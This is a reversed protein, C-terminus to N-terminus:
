KRAQSYTNRFYQIKFGKKKAYTLHTNINFYQINEIKNKKTEKVRWEDSSVKLHFRMDNLFKDIFIYM